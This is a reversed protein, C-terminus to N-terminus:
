RSVTSDVACISSVPAYATITLPMAGRLGNRSSVDYDPTPMQFCTAGGLALVADRERHTTVEGRRSDVPSPGSGSRQHARCCPSCEVFDMVIPLEPLTRM